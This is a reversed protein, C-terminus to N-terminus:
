QLKMEIEGQDVELAREKANKVAIFNFGKLIASLLNFFFLLSLM